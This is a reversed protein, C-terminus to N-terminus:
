DQRVAQRSTFYRRSRGNLLLFPLVAFAVVMLLGGGEPSRGAAAELSASVLIALALAGYLGASTWMVWPRPKGSIVGLVVSVGGFALLAAAVGFRSWFDEAAEMGSLLVITGAILQQGGSLVSPIGIFLM